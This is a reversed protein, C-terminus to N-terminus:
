SLVVKQGAYVTASAKALVPRVRILGQEAATFTVALKQRRMAKFTCSGDTISDGDVATAYGGPESGSSSGSSATCIFVRGANSATKILNGISYPTSNARATIGTDWAETSTAQATGATLIDTACDTLTKFQTSASDHAYDVELWVENDKLAASENHIIEVTATQSSTSENVAIRDMGILPTLPYKCNSSAAMKYSLPVAAANLKIGDTGAPYLTTFDRVIGSFDDVYAKYNTDGSDLNYGEFRDGSRLTGSTFTSSWSSPLKCNSVVAKPTTGAGVKFIPCSTGINSLDVGKINYAGGRSTGAMDLLGNTLSTGSLVVGRIIELKGQLSQIGQGAHAFKFSCDQLITIASEGPATGATLRNATSTGTIWFECYDYKQYTNATNANLNLSTGSVSGTGMQFIVGYAYLSGGIALTPSVTSTSVMGTKALATPPAASDSVCLIINPSTNTGHFTITIGIATTENHNNSVYLTDGASMATAIWDMRIHAFTWNATSGSSFGAKRATWVAAGDSVTTVDQTVSSPWTPVAAGSVGTTTCEWVWRRVVAFNTSADALAIVMRDGSTYLTTNARHTAGAGSKLYFDAM